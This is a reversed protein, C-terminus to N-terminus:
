LPVRLGFRSHAIVLSVVAGAAYVIPAAFRVRLVANQARSLTKMRLVAARDANGLVGGITPLDDRFSDLPAQMAPGEVVLAWVVLFVFLAAIGTALERANKASLVATANAVAVGAVGALSAITREAASKAASQAADASQRAADIAISRAQRQSELVAAVEHTRLALFIPEAAQKVEEPASPLADADFLSVVQRIALIRDPAAESTAWMYLNIARQGAMATYGHRSLQFTRRRYGFYELSAADADDLATTTNSLWAWASADARLQLAHILEEAGMHGDAPELEEPLLVGQPVQAGSESAVYDRRSGVGALTLRVGAELRNLSVVAFSATQLEIGDESTIVIVTAGAEDVFLERARWWPYEDLEKIVVETTRVVRWARGDDRKDLPTSLEVTLNGSWQGGLTTAADIDGDWAKLARQLEDGEFVASADGNPDSSFLYSSGPGRRLEFSVPGKRFALDTATVDAVADLIELHPIGESEGKPITVRCGLFGDNVECGAKALDELSVVAARVRALGSELRGGTRVAAPGPEPM